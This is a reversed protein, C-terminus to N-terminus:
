DCDAACAAPITQIISSILVSQNVLEKEEWDKLKDFCFDNHPWFWVSPSSLKLISRSNTVTFSGNALKHPNEEPEEAKMPNQSSAKKDQM